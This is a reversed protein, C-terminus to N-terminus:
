YVWVQVRHSARDAIYLRGTKDAAIDNPYNFEGSDTGYDGFDFLPMPKEGTVDFVRVVHGIGDVVYLREDEDITMGRPLSFGRLTELWNGNRDLIQIRGNNSDSVYVRGRADAVASNPFWFTNNDNGNGQRGFQFTLAGEQNIALLRHKGDPVDTVWLTDGDVRVGLPSWGDSTPPKLSSKYNGGADYIDVSHRLRDTVYVRGARDVAVYVPARGSPLSNPPVFSFLEKGDRDFAHVKREAGSEAVYLREGDPTVAVGVPEEVGYVSFLYHPRLARAVQGIPPLAAFLPKRTSLYYAWVCVSAVLLLFLLEFLVIRKLNRNVHDPHKQAVRQSPAKSLTM